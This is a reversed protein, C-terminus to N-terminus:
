IGVESLYHDLWNKLKRTESKGISGHVTSGNKMKVYFFLSAGLVEFKIDGERVKITCKRPKSV